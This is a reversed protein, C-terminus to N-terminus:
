KTKKWPPTAWLLERARQIARQRLQAIRQAHWGATFARAATLGPDEAALEALLRNGMAADNIDGLDEQLAALAKAYTGVVAEPWLPAFFELGYRLRKLVIRLRHLEAVDGGEAAELSRRAKRRTSRLAERALSEVSEGHQPAELAHLFAALELMAAGRGGGTSIGIDNRASERAQVVKAVLREMDEGVPGSALIPELLAHHVVDADRAGGLANALGALRPKWAAVADDPLVASCLTFASRLRRLAVRAQHLFEASDKDALHGENFQWMALTEFGIARFADIASMGSKVPSASARRPKTTQKQFLAYGRQAKSIDEPILPLDQALAIAIAFLDAADGSELELELECLPASAGEVEISGNDFMILISVGERPRIRLTEREFRTSFVPTLADRLTELRERVAEADIQSFDFRDNEYPQEWEPRSSLGGLSSAACKVTQLKRRGTHRIRLAMRERRLALDLTDFYTNDLTRRDEAPEAAALAAHTRVAQLAEAPLSLKLEIETSM